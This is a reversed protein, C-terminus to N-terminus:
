RAAADGAVRRQAPQADREHLLVVKRATRRAARRPQHVAADAIELVAVKMQHELRAGLAPSQEPERRVEHPRQENM